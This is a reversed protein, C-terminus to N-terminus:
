ISARGIKLRHAVESAGFDKRRSGAVDDAKVHAVFDLNQFVTLDEHLSFRRTM